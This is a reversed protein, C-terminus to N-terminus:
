RAIAAERRSRNSAHATSWVATCATPSALPLGEMSQMSSAMLFAVAAGFAV